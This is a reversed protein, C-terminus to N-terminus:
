EIEQPTVRRLETVKKFAYKDAEAKTSGFGWGRYGDQDMALSAHQGTHNHGPKEPVVRRQKIEIAM